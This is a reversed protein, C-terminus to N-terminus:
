MWGCGAQRTSNVILRSASRETCIVSGAYTLLNPVVIGVGKGSGTPAFVVVSGEVDAFRLLRTSGFQGRLTGVILGSSGLLGLGKAEGYRLWRATGFTVPTSRCQWAIWKIGRVICRRVGGILAVTLGLRWRWDAAVAASLVVM